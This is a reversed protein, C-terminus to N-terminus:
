NMYLTVYGGGFDPYLVTGDSECMVEHQGKTTVEKRTLELLWETVTTEDKQSHQIFDYLLRQLSAEKM